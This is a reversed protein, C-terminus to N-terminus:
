DGSYTTVGRELWELWCGVCGTDHQNCKGTYSPDINFPCCLNAFIDALCEDDMQRLFEGNSFPEYKDKAKCSFCPEAYEWCEKHRCTNCDREM